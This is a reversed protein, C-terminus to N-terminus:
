ANTREKKKNGNGENRGYQSTVFSASDRRMRRWCWLFPRLPFYFFHFTKPLPLTKLDNSTPYLYYIVLLAKQSVTMMTFLYQTYYNLLQKNSNSSIDVKQKIFYIAKQALIFSRSNDMLLAIDRPIKTSFLVSCLLLAQGGLYQNEYSSYASNLKKVNLMGKNIMCDIDYLWRLRFWGHRAGHLVLYNFLDEQCLYNIPSSALTTTVRRSWLDEFREGKLKSSTRWHLEVQSSTIPNTYSVHHHKRKWGILEEEKDTIYGLCKLIEEAKSLHQPNVLIDLDKSTRLSIDGYLISALVPGKLFISQVQNTIFANNIKELESSLKLMKFTNEIYKSELVKMVSLPVSPNNLEKLKVYLIPYVRHHLALNIMEDWDVDLFHSENVSHSGLIKLLLTLEKSFDKTEILPNNLM